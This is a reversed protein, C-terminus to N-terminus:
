LSVSDLVDDLCKFKKFCSSFVVSIIGSNRSVDPYGVLVGCYLLLLLYVVYACLLWFNPCLRWGGTSPTMSSSFNQHIRMRIAIFCPEGCFFFWRTARGFFKVRSCCLLTNVTASTRYFFNFIKKILLLESKNRVRLVYYMAYVFSFFNM